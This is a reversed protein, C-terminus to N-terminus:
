SFHHPPLDVLPEVDCGPGLTATPEKSGARPNETKKRPNPGGKGKILFLPMSHRFDRHERQHNENGKCLNDNLIHRSFM